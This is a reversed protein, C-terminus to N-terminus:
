TNERQIARPERAVVLPSVTLRAPPGGIHRYTIAAAHHGYIMFLSKELVFEGAVFRWVPWPDLRFEELIPQGGPRTPHDPHLDVAFEFLESEGQLREEFGLLLATLRGQPGAVVLHAQTSRTHAGAATGSAQGGLGNGLQWERSLSSHLDSLVDQGLRM